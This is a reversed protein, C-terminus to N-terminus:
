LGIHKSMVAISTTFQKGFRGYPSEHVGNFFFLNHIFQYRGLPIVANNNCICM